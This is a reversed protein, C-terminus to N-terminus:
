SNNSYLYMGPARPWHRPVDVLHDLYNPTLFLNDRAYRRALSGLSEVLDAGSYFRYRVCFPGMGETIFPHDIFPM